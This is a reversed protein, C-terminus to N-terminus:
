KVCFISDFDNFVNFKLSYVLFVFVMTPTFISFFFFDNFTVRKGYM